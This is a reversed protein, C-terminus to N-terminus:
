DKEVPTYWKAEEKVNESLWAYYAEESQVEGRIMFEGNNVECLDEETYDGAEFKM